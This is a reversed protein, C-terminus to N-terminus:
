FSLNTKLLLIINTNLTENFVLPHFLFNSVKCLDVVQSQISMSFYDLKFELIVITKIATKIKTNSM